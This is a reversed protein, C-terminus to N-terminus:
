SYEVMLKSLILLNLKSQTNHLLYNWYVIDTEKAYLGIERLQIDAGVYKWDGGTGKIASFHSIQYKGSTFDMDNAILIVDARRAGDHFVNWIDTYFPSVVSIQINFMKSIM